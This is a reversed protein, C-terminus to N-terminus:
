IRGIIKRGSETVDMYDTDISRKSSGGITEMVTIFDDLTMGCGLDRVTLVSFDDSFDINVSPSDADYSNSILEKLADAPSRYLGQALDAIIKLSVNIAREQM